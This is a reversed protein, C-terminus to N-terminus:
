TDITSTPGIGLGGRLPIDRWVLKRVADAPAERIEREVAVTLVRARAAPWAPM